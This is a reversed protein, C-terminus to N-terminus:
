AQPYKADGMLRIAKLSKHVVRSVAMETLGLAKATQAQNLGNIYVYEMIKRDGKPLRNLLSNVYDYLDYLEIDHYRTDPLTDSLMEDLPDLYEPPFARIHHLISWRIYKYALGNLSSKSLHEPDYKNVAEVLGLSGAQYLDDYTDWRDRSYRHALNKVIGLLSRWDIL